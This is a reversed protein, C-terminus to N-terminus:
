VGKGGVGELRTQSGFGAILDRGRAIVDRVAPDQLSARHAAEDDWAEYVWVADADDASRHVAYVRCAENDGLGAAAELLLDELADAQGPQARIKGILVFM